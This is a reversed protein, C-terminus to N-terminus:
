FENKEGFNSDSTLIKPNKKPDDLKILRNISSKLADQLDSTEQFESIAKLFQSYESTSLYALWTSKTVQAKPHSPIGKTSLPQPKTLSRNSGDRSPVPPTKPLPPTPIPKPQSRM